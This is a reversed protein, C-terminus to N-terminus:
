PELMTSLLEQYEVLQRERRLRNAKIIIILDRLAREFQDNLIIYDFEQTHSLTEKADAFRKVIIDPQDLNRNTLRDKLDQMSPPLVFISEAQPFIKKVQQHGQWDIELIVDTGAILTEEVWRKSTGYLHDFITAHELFDGQDILKQFTNKDIFYYNVGHVENQRKPRTTHSVSVM